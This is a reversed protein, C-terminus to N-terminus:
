YRMEKLFHFDDPSAKSPFPENHFRQVQCACKHAAATKTSSDHSAPVAAQSLLCLHSQPRVKLFLVTTTQMVMM